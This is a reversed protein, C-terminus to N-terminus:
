TPSSSLQRTCFSIKCGFYRLVRSYIPMSAQCSKKIASTPADAARAPKSTTAIEILM